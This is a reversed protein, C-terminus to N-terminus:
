GELEPVIEAFDRVYVDSLSIIEEVPEATWDEIACVKMGAAKAGKIAYAADEFMWCDQAEMGLRAAVIRFFEPDSKGCGVEYGDTVFQFYKLLGHKELAMRAVKRPTATAVACPIGRKALAELLAPVGPKMHVDNEYYKVMRRETELVVSEDDPDVGADECIKRLTIRGSQKFTQHIDGKPLPLDHAIAYELATLRWFRMSDLLTGDMDFIAAKCRSIM